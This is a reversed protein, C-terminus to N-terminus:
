LSENPDQQRIYSLLDKAMESYATVASYDFDV